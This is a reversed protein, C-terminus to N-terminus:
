DLSDFDQFSTPKTRAPKQDLFSFATYKNRTPKCYDNAYDHFNRLQTVLWKASNKHVHLYTPFRLM